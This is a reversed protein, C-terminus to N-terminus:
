KSYLEVILKENIDSYVESRDPARKFVVSFSKHNAEIWDPAVKQSFLDMASKIRLQGRSKEKVTIIDGPSVQLSPVNVAKGNLLFTKHSVMQRAENRTSAFGSRYIVNDLRSEMIQLLIEGTPGKKKVSIKYSNRFQKELVGYLRRVKQKERLQTGYESLRGKRQGHQGPNSQSRCKSEHSRVGSKLFLDVGERRALKCKPGLYRAMIVELSKEKETSSL